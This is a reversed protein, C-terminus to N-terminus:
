ALRIVWNKVMKELVNLPVSGQSILLDHFKRRDFKAGLKTQAFERLELIKERGVLYACAQGPWVTYRAIESEVQGKFRGTEQYMFDIAKERSWGMYHIGTDVVCRAARFAIAQLYGIRGPIDNEYMGIEDAITEAYLGWGEGYATFGMMNARIFPLSKNEQALANQNHHGPSAEHYTLTKLTWKPWGATDRLNIYYAGPRSGDLAPRQYYGNPAGAEIFPPVRRVEVKAKPLVEFLEPLKKDMDDIMVRIDSLIKERGEDTNPYSYKPDKYLAAMKDAFSTGKYGLENLHTEMQAKLEACRKLGLKHVEKPTMNTTTSRALAKEYYHKGRKFQHVGAVSKANPIASKFLNLTKVYEPIISNKLINLAPKQHQDIDMNADKLKKALSVSLINKEIPTEIVANLQKIVTEIIYKPPILGKEFDSSARERENAMEKAFAEMRLLWADADTQTKIKHQSDMFDPFSQYIGTLQSIVYPSPQGVVDGIDTKALELAFNNSSKLIELTLKEDDNLKTTEIKALKESLAFQKAIRTKLATSSRDSLRHNYAGGVKAPDINLSTCQEPSDKLRDNTLTDLFDSFSWEKMAFANSSFLSVAGARMLVDRRSIMQVEINIQSFFVLPMRVFLNLTDAIQKASNIKNLSFLVEFTQM